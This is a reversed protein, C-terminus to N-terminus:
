QAFIPGMAPTNRFPIFTAAVTDGLYEVAGITPTTTSRINGMVDRGLTYTAYFQGSKLEVGSHWIPTRAYRRAQMGSAAICRRCSSM